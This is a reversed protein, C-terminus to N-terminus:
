FHHLSIHTMSGGSKNFKRVSSKTADLDSSEQSVMLCISKSLLQSKQSGVSYWRDSCSPKPADAGRGRGGGCGQLIM